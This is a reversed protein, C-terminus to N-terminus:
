LWKLQSPTAEKWRLIFMLADQSNEFIFNAGEREVPNKVHEDLWYSIDVAHHNDIFRSLTVRTWRTALLEGLTLIETGSM